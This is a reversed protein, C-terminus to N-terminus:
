SKCSQIKIASEEPSPSNPRKEPYEPSLSNPRKAPYEPSSSKPRNEAKKANFNGKFQENGKVNDNAKFNGKFQENGKFNENAKFNGKFQESAKNFNAKSINAADKAPQKM